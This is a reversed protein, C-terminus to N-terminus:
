QGDTDAAGRRQADEKYATDIQRRVEAQAAQAQAAQQAASEAASGGGLGTQAVGCGASLAVPLALLAWARGM